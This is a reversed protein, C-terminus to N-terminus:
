CETYLYLPLMKPNISAPITATVVPYSATEHVEVSSNPINTLDRHVIDVMKQIGEPVPKPKPQSISEQQIYERFRLDKQEIQAKFIQDLGKIWNKLGVESNDPLVIFLERGRLSLHYGSAAQVEEGSLSNLTEGASEVSSLNIIAHPRDPFFKHLFNETRDVYRSFQEVIDVSTKNGSPSLEKVQLPRLIITKKDNTSSETLTRKFSKEPDPTIINVDEQELLEKVRKLLDPNDLTNDRFISFVTGEPSCSIIEKAHTYLKQAEKELTEESKIERSGNTEFHYLENSLDNNESFPQQIKEM